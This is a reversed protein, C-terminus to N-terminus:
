RAARISHNRGGDIRFDVDVERGQRLNWDQNSFGIAWQFRNRVGLVAATLGNRYQASAACHSFRGTQDNTYAGMSWGSVKYSTITAASAPMALSAAAAFTAIALIRMDTLM